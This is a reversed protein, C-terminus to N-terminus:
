KIDGKVEDRTYKASHVGAYFYNLVKENLLTDVDPVFWDVFEQMFPHEIYNKDDTIVIIPKKMTWALVIESLTGTPTRNVGFTNLNAIILDSKAVADYDRAFIAKPPVCSKLGDATITNLEKGNLPCLINVDWDKLAFYERIKFRWDTCEKIKLGNIFGALYCTYM